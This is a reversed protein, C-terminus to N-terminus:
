SAQFRVKVVLREHGGQATEPEDRVDRGVDEGVTEEATGKEQCDQSKPLTGIGIEGGRVPEHSRSEDEEREPQKRATDPRFLCPSGVPTPVRLFRPACGGPSGVQDHIFKVKDKNNLTSCPIKFRFGARDLHEVEVGWLHIKVMTLIMAKVLEFEDM